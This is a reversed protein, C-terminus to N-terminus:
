PQGDEGLLAPATGTRRVLQTRGDRGERPLSQPASSPRAAVALCRPNVRAGSTSGCANGTRHRRPQGFEAGRNWDGKRPMPRYRPLISSGQPPNAIATADTSFFTRLDCPSSGPITIAESRSGSPDAALCCDPAIPTQFWPHEFFAPRVPILTGSVAKAQFQSVSPMEFVSLSRDFCSSFRRPTGGVPLLLRGAPVTRRTGCVSDGPPFPWTFLSNEAWPLMHIEVFTAPEPSELVPLLQNRNRNHRAPETDSPYGLLRFSRRQRRVPM